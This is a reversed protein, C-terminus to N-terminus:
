SGPRISTAVALSREGHTACGIGYLEPESSQVNVVVLHGGGTQTPITKVDKIKLTARGRRAPEQSRLAPEPM